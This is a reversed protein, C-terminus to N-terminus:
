KILLTYPGKKRSIGESDVLVIESVNLQDGPVLVSILGIQEPSYLCGKVKEFQHKLNGEADNVTMVFSSIYEDEIFTDYSIVTLTPTELVEDVSAVVDVINGFHIDSDAVRKNTFVESVILNGNEYIDFRAEKQFSSNFTFQALDTKELSLEGIKVEYQKTEDTNNLYLQNKKGSYVYKANEESISLNTLGIQASLSSCFLLSISSIILGNKM